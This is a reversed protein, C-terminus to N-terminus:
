LASSKLRICHVKFRLNDRCRFDHQQICHAYLEIGVENQAGEAQTQIFLTYVM